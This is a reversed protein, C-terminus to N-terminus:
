RDVERRLEDASGKNGVRDLWAAVERILARTAEEDSTAMGKWFSHLASKVLGGVPLVPSAPQTASPEQEWRKIESWESDTYESENNVHPAAPQTVPPIQESESQALAGREERPYPDCVELRACTMATQNLVDCWPIGANETISMLVLLVDAAESLPDGHKGRIAEILESAELLLYVGRSSWSLDWGRKKCMTLVRAPLANPPQATTTAGDAEENLWKIIRKLRQLLNYHTYSNARYDSNGTCFNLAGTLLQVEALSLQYPHSTFRFARVGRIGRLLTEHDVDPHRGCARYFVDLLQGDANKGEPDIYAAPLAHGKPPIGSDARAAADAEGLLYGEALGDERGRRYDSTENNLVWAESQTAAEPSALADVIESLTKQVDLLQADKSEASVCCLGESVENLAEKVKESCLAM